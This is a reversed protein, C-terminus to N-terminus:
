YHPLYGRCPVQKVTFGQALLQRLLAEQFGVGTTEAHWRMVNYRLHIHAGATSVSAGRFFQWARSLIGGRGTMSTPPAQHLASRVAYPVVIDADGMARLMDTMTELPEVNDATVFRFYKGKGIFAGDVVNQALGKCYRNVKLVVSLSPFETMFGHAIEGTRDSSRDDIIILEYSRGVIDMAEQIIHLTDLLTEEHNHCYVLLTLDCAAQEYPLTIPSIDHYKRAAPSLSVAGEWYDRGVEPRDLM